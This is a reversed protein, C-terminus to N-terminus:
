KAESVLEKKEEVSKTMRSKDKKARALDAPDAKDGRTAKVGEDLSTRKGSPIRRTAGLPVVLNPSSASPTMRGGRTLEAPFARKAPTPQPTASVSTSTSASIPKSGSMASPPTSRRRGMAALNSASSSTPLHPVPLPPPPLSSMHSQTRSHRIKQPRGAASSAASTSPEPSDPTSVQMLRSPRRVSLRRSALGPSNTGSPSSAGVLDSATSSRSMGSSTRPPVVTSSGSSSSRADSFPDTYGSATTINREPAIDLKIATVDRKGDDGSAVAALNSSLSTSKPLGLGLGTSSRTSRSEMVSWRRSDRRPTEEMRSKTSTAAQTDDNLRIDVPSAPVPELSPTLAAVTSGGSVRRASPTLYGLSPQPKKKPTQPIFPVDLDEFRHAQQRTAPHIYSSSPMPSPSIRGSSGVSSTSSSLPSPPYLMSEASSSSSQSAASSSSVARAPTTNEPLLYFYLFELCKMRSMLPREVPALSQERM